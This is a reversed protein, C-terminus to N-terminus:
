LESAVDLGARLVRVVILKEGQIHYVVLCSRRVPWFRVEEDTLDSRKHGLYPHGSLKECAAFIDTEFKDAAIPNDRAIYSWIADLDDIAVQSLEWPTM